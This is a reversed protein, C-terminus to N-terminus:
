FTLWKYQSNSNIYINIGSYLINFDQQGNDVFFSNDDRRPAPSLSPPRCPPPALSSENSRDFMFHLFREDEYYRIDYTAAFAFIAFPSQRRPRPWPVCTLTDDHASKTASFYSVM